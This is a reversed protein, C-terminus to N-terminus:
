KYGGLGLGKYAWFLLSYPNASLTTKDIFVKKLGIGLFFLPVLTKFDLLGNTKQYLSTNISDNLETINSQIKSQQKASLMEELGLLKACVSFIMLPPLSNIDYYILISGTITNVEIQKIGGIKSMQTEFINKLNDNKVLINAVLRIRGPLIHKTELIGKFSPLSNKNNILKEKLTNKMNEKLNTFTNDTNNPFKKGIFSGKRM